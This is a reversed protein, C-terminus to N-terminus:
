TQGDRNVEMQHIANVRQKAALAVLAAAEEIISKAWDANLESIMTQVEDEFEKLFRGLRRVSESDAKGMEHAAVWRSRRDIVIFIRKWFKQVEQATGLQVLQWYADSRRLTRIAKEVEEEVPIAATSRGIAAEIRQGVRRQVASDVARALGSTQEDQSQTQGSQEQDVGSNPGQDRMRRVM